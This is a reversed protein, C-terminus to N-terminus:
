FPSDNHFGDVKETVVNDVVELDPGCERPKNKRCAQVVKRAILEQKRLQEIEHLNTEAGAQKRQQEIERVNTLISLQTPPGSNSRSVPTVTPNGQPAPPKQPLIPHSVRSPTFPPADHRPPISPPPPMAIASSDSRQRRNQTTVAPTVELTVVPPEPTPPSFPSLGTTDLNRPLRLRLETFVYFIIERSVGTKAIYEPDVGWGLLDLFIDKAAEYQKENVSSFPTLSQWLFPIM